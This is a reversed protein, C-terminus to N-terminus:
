FCNDCSCHNRKGSECRPSADHPPCMEGKALQACTQCSGDLVFSTRANLKAVEAKAERPKDSIYLGCFQAHGNADRLEATKRYKCPCLPM